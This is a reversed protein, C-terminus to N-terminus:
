AAPRLDDKGDDARGRVSALRAWVRAVKIAEQMQEAFQEPSTCCHTWRGSRHLETFYLLRRDALALWHLATAETNFGCPAHRM